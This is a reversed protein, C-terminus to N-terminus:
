EGYQCVAPGAPVYRILEGTADATAYITGCAGVAVGAFKGIPNRGSGSEPDLALQDDIVQIDSRSRDIRLLRGAGTEAVILSGGPTVSLGEPQALGTATVIPEVLPQGNEVLQLITGSARDGVWLSQATGTLGAPARMGAAFTAVEGTNDQLSLAGREVEVILLADGFRVGNVPAAYGGFTDVVSDSLPDWLAVRDDSASMVLLQGGARAINEVNPLPPPHRRLLAGTDGDVEDISAGNPVFLVDGRPSPLVALGGGFHQGRAIVFRTYESSEQEALSSGRRAPTCASVAALLVVGFQLGRLARMVRM